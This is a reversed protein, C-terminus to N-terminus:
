EIRVADSGRQFSFGSLCVTAHSKGDLVVIANVQDASGAWLPPSSSFGNRMGSDFVLLRDGPAPDPFDDDPCSVKEGSSRSTFNRGFDLRYDRNASGMIHCLVSTLEYDWTDLIVQPEESSIATKENFYQAEPPFVEAVELIYVCNGQAIREALKGSELLEWEQVFVAPPNAEGAASTSLLLIVSLILSATLVKKMRM